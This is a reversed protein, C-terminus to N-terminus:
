GITMGIKVDFWIIRDDVHTTPQMIWHIEITEHM